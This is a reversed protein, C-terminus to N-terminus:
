GGRECGSWCGCCTSRSAAYQTSTSPPGAFKECDHALWDCTSRRCAPLPSIPSEPIAEDGAKRGRHVIDAQGVIRLEAGAITAVPAPRDRRVQSEGTSACTGAATAIGRHPQSPRCSGPSGAPAARPRPAVTARPRPTRNSFTDDAHRGALRRMDRARRALRAQQPHQAADDLRPATADGAVGERRRGRAPRGVPRYAPRATAPASRRGRTGSASSSRRVHSRSDM